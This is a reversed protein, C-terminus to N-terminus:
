PITGTQAPTTRIKSLSHSPVISSILLRMKVSEGTKEVFLGTDNLPSFFQFYHRVCYMQM